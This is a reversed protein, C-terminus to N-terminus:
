ARDTERLTEEAIEAASLSPAEAREAALLRSHLLGKLEKLATQEDSPFLRELTYQKISKGELAALAKLAQHQQPTVDITLRSM